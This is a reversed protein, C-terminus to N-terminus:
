EAVSAEEVHLYELKGRGEKVDWGEELETLYNSMTESLLVSRINIRWSEENQAVYYMVYNADDEINVAYTDGAVRAEDGLWSGLEESLTSPSLGEYLGGVSAAGAEDYLSVLEMFSEETAEGSKWQDLITQADVTSTVIVRADATPTDDRYRGDFSVVLYRNYTTDEAIYTDGAVRAEDFLFDSVLGNVYIESVNTYAEGETAVTAEAEEALKKAEAMAAAIEEETPEYEVEKGEEDVPVTGDPNTTPLEAEVIAMHYDVSDYDIKNEEYYALIEDESPLKENAKSEYFATTVMTEKIIDELRDLTALSGYSAVVYDKVSAGAESAAATLEAVFIDYEVDVDAYTFGEADAAAKLSKTNIINQVALEEFYEGFTLNNDYMESEITTLDLGFMSLYSGYDSNLFSNMALAYNYDFEVQTIKEDGVTIYATNLAIYSRIPFSLVFAALLAVLVIGIIKGQKEEKKARAEAERRKQMKLDYKTMAKETKQETAEAVVKEKKSM